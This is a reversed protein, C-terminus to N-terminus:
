IMEFLDPIFLTNLKDMNPRTKDLDIATNESQNDSFYLNSDIEIIFLEILIAICNKM